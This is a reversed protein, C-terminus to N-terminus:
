SSSDPQWCTTAHIFGHCRYNPGECSIQATVRTADKAFTYCAVSVEGQVSVVPAASPGYRLSLASDLQECCPWFDLESSFVLQELINNPDENCAQVLETEIDFDQGLTFGNLLPM